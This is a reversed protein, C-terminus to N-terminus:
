STRETPILEGSDLKAHLTPLAVNNVGPLGEICVGVIPKGKPTEHITVVLRRREMDDRSDFLMGPTVRDSPDTYETLGTAGTAISAVRKDIQVVTEPPLVFDKPVLPKKKSTTEGLAAEGALALGKGSLRSLPNAPVLDPSIRLRDPM